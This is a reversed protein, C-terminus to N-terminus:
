VGAAVDVGAEAVGLHQPHHVQQQQAARRRHQCLGPPFSPASWQGHAEERLVLLYGQGRFAGPSVLGTLRAHSDDAHMM